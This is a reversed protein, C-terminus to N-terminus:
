VLYVIISISQHFCSGTTLQRGVFPVILVQLVQLEAEDGVLEGVM